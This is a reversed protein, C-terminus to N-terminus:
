LKHSKLMAEIFRDFKYNLQVEDKQNAEDMSFHSTRLNHNRYKENLECVEFNISFYWINPIYYAQVKIEDSM